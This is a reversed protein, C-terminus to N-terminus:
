VSKACRDHNSPGSIAGECGDQYMSGVRGGLDRRFRPIGDRTARGRAEGENAQRVDIEREASLSPEILSCLTVVSVVIGANRDAFFFYGSAERSGRAM